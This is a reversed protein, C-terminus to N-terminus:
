ARLWLDGFSTATTDEMIIGAAGNGTVVASGGLQLNYASQVQINFAEFKGHAYLGSYINQTGLASNTTVAYLPLSTLGTGNGTFTGVMTNNANTFSVPGANNTAAATGTQSANIATAATTATLSSIAVTATAANGTTNNTLTGTLNGTITGGVVLNGGLSVPGANTLPGNNTVTTFTAGGTVVFTTASITAATGTGAINIHDRWHKSFQDAHNGDRNWQDVSHREHSIWWWRQRNRVSVGFWEM